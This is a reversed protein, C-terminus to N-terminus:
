RALVHYNRRPGKYGIHRRGGEEVVATARKGRWWGGGGGGGGHSSVGDDGRVLDFTSDVVALGDDDVVAIDQVEAFPDVSMGAALQGDQVHNTAICGVLDIHVDEASRCEPVVQMVGAMGMRAVNPTGGKRPISGLTMQRLM